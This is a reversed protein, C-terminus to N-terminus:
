LYRLGSWGQKLPNNHTKKLTSQRGVHYINGERFNVHGGSFPGNWLQKEDELWQNKLLYTLKRPIAVLLLCRCFVFSGDKSHNSGDFPWISPWGGLFSTTRQTRPIHKKKVGDGDVLGNEGRGPSNKQHVLLPPVETASNGHPWAAAMFFRQPLKNSVGSNRFFVESKKLKSILPKKRPLLFEPQVHFQM